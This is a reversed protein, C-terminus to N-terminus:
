EILHCDDFDSNQLTSTKKKEFLVCNLNLEVDINEIKELEEGSTFNQPTTKVLPLKEFRGQIISPNM